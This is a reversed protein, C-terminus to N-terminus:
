VSTYQRLMVSSCVKLWVLLILFHNLQLFARGAMGSLVVRNREGATAM